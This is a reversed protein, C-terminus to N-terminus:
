WTCPDGRSKAHALIYRNGLGTKLKMCITYVPSSLDLGLTGNIGCKYPVTPAGFWGARTSPAPPLGDVLNGGPVEYLLSTKSLFCLNNFIRAFQTEHFVQLAWLKEGLAHIAMLSQM